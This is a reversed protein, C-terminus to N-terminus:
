ANGNPRRHAGLVTRFSIMAAWVLIATPEPVAGNDAAEFLRFHGPAQSVEFDDGTDRGINDVGQFVYNDLNVGFPNVRFAGSHVDMDSVSLNVPENDIG